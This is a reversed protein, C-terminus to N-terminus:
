PEEDLTETPRERSAQLRDADAQECRRLYDNYNMGKLDFSLKDWYDGDVEAKPSITAGRLYFDEWAVDTYLRGQEDAKKRLEAKGRTTHSDVCIERNAEIVQRASIKGEKIWHTIAVYIGDVERSKKARCLLMCALCLPMTDVYGSNSARKMELYGVCMTTANAATTPDALGIDESAIVILRKAVSPGYGSEMLEIAITMAEKELGRRIMKQLGSIAEDYATGDKLKLDYKQPAGM